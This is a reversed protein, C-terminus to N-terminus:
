FFSFFFSLWGISCEQCLTVEGCSTTICARTRTQTRPGCDCEEWEGWESYMEVGTCIYYSLGPINNHSRKTVNYCIHGSILSGNLFKQRSWLKLKTLFSFFIELNKKWIIENVRTTTNGASDSFITVQASVGLNSGRCQVDSM